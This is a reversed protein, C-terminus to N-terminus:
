PPRGARWWGRGEHGSADSPLASTLPPGTRPWEADGCCLRHRFAWTKSVQVSHLRNDGTHIIELFRLPECYPRGARRDFRQHAVDDVGAGIAHGHIEGLLEQRM